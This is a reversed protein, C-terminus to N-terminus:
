YGSSPISISIDILPEAWKSRSPDCEDGTAPGYDTVMVSRFELSMQLIFNIPVSSKQFILTHNSVEDKLIQGRLVTQINQCSPLRHCNMSIINNNDAAIFLTQLKLM